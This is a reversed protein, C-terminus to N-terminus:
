TLDHQRNFRIDSVIRIKYAETNNGNPIYNGEADLEFCAAIRGGPYVEICEYKVGDLEFVQLPELEALIM